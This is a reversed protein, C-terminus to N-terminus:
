QVLKAAEIKAINVLEENTIYLGRSLAEYEYTCIVSVIINDKIFHVASGFVGYHTLDTGPPIFQWYKSDLSRREPNDVLYAGDGIDEIIVKDRSDSSFTMNAADPNEYQEIRVVVLGVTLNGLVKDFYNEYVATCNPKVTLISTGNLVHTWGSPLDDLTLMLDRPETAIPWPHEIEVPLGRLITLASGKSDKFGTFLEEVDVELTYNGPEWLYPVEVLYKEVSTQNRGGSSGGGGWSLIDDNGALLEGNPDYVTLTTKFHASLTGDAYIYTGNDSTVSSGSVYNRNWVFSYSLYIGILSGQSFETLISGFQPTQTYEIAMTTLATISVENVQITENTEQEPQISIPIFPLVKFSVKGAFAGVAMSCIVICVLLVISFRNMKGGVLIPM